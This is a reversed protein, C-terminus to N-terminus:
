PENVIASIKGKVLHLVEPDPPGPFCTPTNISCFEFSIELDTREGIIFGGGFCSTFNIDQEFGPDWTISFTGENLCNMPTTADDTILFNGAIIHEGISNVLRMKVEGDNNGPASEGKFTFDLCEFQTPFICQQPLYKNFDFVGFYYLAGITIMITLFAWAYTTLFELAAQSKTNLKPM